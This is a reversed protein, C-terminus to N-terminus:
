LVAEQELLARQILGVDLQRPSQNMKAALGAAVGAAHGTCACTSTIHIFSGASKATVLLGEVRKPLLSRYPIEFGREPAAHWDHGMARGVADDFHTGNIVDELTLTYEVAIRRSFTTSVRTPLWLMRSNRFGPIYNRYLRHTMWQVKRMDAQIRSFEVPDLLDIPIRPQIREVAVGDGQYNFVLWADPTDLHGGEGAIKYPPEERIPAIVRIDTPATFDTAGGWRGVIRYAPDDQVARWRLEQFGMLAIVNGLRIMEAVRDVSVKTDDLGELWCQDLRERMYKLTEEINVNCVRAHAGAYGGRHPEAAGGKIRFFGNPIDNYNEFACGAQAAVDGHGSTDVVTQASVAFRQGRFEILVGAICDDDMIVGAVTSDLLLTVGAEDCIQHLAFRLSQPEIMTGMWHLLGESKHEASAWSGGVFHFPKEGESAKGMQEPVAHWVYGCDGLEAARLLIERTTGGIVWNLNRDMLQNPSVHFVDAAQGGLVGDREIIVVSAGVRAAGVAAAVGTIGGGVVVVDAAYVVPTTRGPETMSKRHNM